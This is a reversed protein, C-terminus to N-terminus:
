NEGIQALAHKAANRASDFADKELDTLAPIAARARSGLRGLAIAASVRVNLRHDTTLRALALVANEDGAGIKGLAEAAAARVVNERAETASIHEAAAPLASPGIMGLATAARARRLPSDSSLGARLAPVAAQGIAGLALMAREGPYRREGGNGYFDGGVVYLDQNDLAAVLPEAARAAGPGIRALVDAAEGAYHDETQVVEILETVIEDTHASVDVLLNASAIQLERARMQSDFLDENKDPIGRLGALLTPFAPEADRGLTKWFEAAEDQGFKPLRDSAYQLEEALQIVAATYHRDIKLMAVAIAPSHHVLYPQLQLLQDHAREGLQGFGIAAIGPNERLGHVLEPVVGAHDPDISALAVAAHLRTAADSNKLLPELVPKLDAAKSGLKNIIRLTELGVNGNTKISESIKPILVDPSPSLNILAARVHSEVNFSLGLGMGAPFSAWEAEENLHEVIQPVVPLGAPGFLGLSYAANARVAEDTDNLATALAEVSENTAPLRGLQVAANARVREDADSLAVVLEHQAALGIRRLAVAANDAVCEAHHAFPMTYVETERLCKTLNAIAPEANPGIEGLADIALLKLGVHGNEMAAILAPIAPEAEEGMEGLLKPALDRTFSELVRKGYDREAEPRPFDNIQRVLTPLITEAPEDLEWLARAAALVVERANDGLLQRLAKRAADDDIHGISGLSEAVAERVSEDQDDITAVLSQVAGQGDRGLFGIRTAAEVRQNPDGTRLAEGLTKLAQANAKDVRALAYAAAIRIDLDSDALAKDLVPVADKALPGWNGIVRLAELRQDKNEREDILSTIGPLAPLGAKGSIGLLFLADDRSREDGGSLNEITESLSRSHDTQAIALDVFLTIVVL